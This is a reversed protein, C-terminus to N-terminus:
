PLKTTRSKPPFVVTKAFIFSVTENRLGGIKSKPEQNLLNERLNNGNM